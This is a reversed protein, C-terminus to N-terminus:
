AVKEEKGAFFADEMMRQKRNKLFVAPIFL